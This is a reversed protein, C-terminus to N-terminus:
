LDIPQDPYPYKRPRDIWMGGLITPLNEWPSLGKFTNARESTSIIRKTLFPASRPPRDSGTETGKYSYSSNFKHVVFIYKSRAGSAALM